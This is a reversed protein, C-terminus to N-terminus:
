VRQPAEAYDPFGAPQPPGAYGLAVWSRPDSYFRRMVDGRAVDFFRRQESRRSGSEAARIIEVREAEGLDEFAMGHQQQARAAMWALGAIALARYEPLGAFAQEIALHVDLDLAGPVAMVHGDASVVTDPPVLTDVFAALSSAPVTARETVRETARETVREAAQGASVGRLVSGCAMITAAIRLWLRRTLLM